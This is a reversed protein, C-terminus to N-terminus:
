FGQEAKARDIIATVQQRIKEAEENERRGSYDFL